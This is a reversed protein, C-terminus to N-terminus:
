TSAQKTETTMQEEAWVTLKERQIKANHRVDVPLDPHFLVDRIGSTIANGAGMALIEDAFRKRATESAPMRYRVPEVILVPRKHRRPGVGVVATRM